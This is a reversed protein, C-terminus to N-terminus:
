ESEKGFIIAISEEYKLILADTGYLTFAFSEQNENQLVGTMYYYGNNMGTDVQMTVGYSDSYNRVTYLSQLESLMEESTCSVPQESVPFELFTPVFKEGSFISQTIANLHLPSIRYDDELASEAIVDFDTLFCYKEAGFHEEDELLTKTTTYQKLDLYENLYGDYDNEIGSLFKEPDIVPMLAFMGDKQESNGSFKTTFVRIKGDSLNQVVCGGYTGNLYFLEYLQHQRFDDLSLTVDNGFTYEKSDNTYNPATRMLYQYGYDYDTNKSNGYLYSLLKKKNFLYNEYATNTHESVIMDPSFIINGETDLFNGSPTYYNYYTKAINYSDLEKNTNRVATISRQYGQVALKFDEQSTTITEENSHHLSGTIMRQLNEHFQLGVAIAIVPFIVLVNFWNVNRGFKM